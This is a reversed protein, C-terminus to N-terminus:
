NLAEPQGVTHMVRRAPGHSVQKVALGDVFAFAGISRAGILWTANMRHNARGKSKGL